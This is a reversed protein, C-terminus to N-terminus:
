RVPEWQFAPLTLVRITNAPAVFDLGKLGLGLDNSTPTAAIRSERPRSTALAVGFQDANSSVDLLRFAEAGSSTLREFRALLEERTTQPDPGPPPGAAALTRPTTQPRSVIGVVLPNTLGSEDPQPAFIMQVTADAPKPWSVIAGLDPTPPVAGSAHIGGIRGGGLGYDFNATYPDPLMPIAFLHRFAVLAFGSDIAFDGRSAVAHGSVFFFLPATTRLFLNRLVIATPLPGPGSAPFGIPALLFVTTGSPLHSFAVIAQSSELALRGGDAAVPRDLHATASVSTFLLLEGPNAGSASFYLVPTPSPFTLDVSSRRPTDREDWLLLSAMAATANVAASTVALHGPDIILTTSGLAILSGHHAVRSRLGSCNASLGPALRLALGGIGDAPGLQDPGGSPVLSLIAWFASAVPASGAPQFLDSQVAAAATFAHADTKYPVLIRNLHADYHAASAAFTLAATTGYATVSAPAAKSITGTGAATARISMSTPLSVRSARADDGPGTLRSPPVPPKELELDIEIHTAADLVIVGASVTAPVSLKLVGGRILLGSFAGDVADAAILRSRIWVTGAPLSYNAKPEPFTALPILLLITGGPGGTVKVQRLIRRIDFWYPRGAIDSFPGLTREVAWGAAWPPVSGPLQATLIPYERRFIRIDAFAAPNEALEGIVSDAISFLTSM